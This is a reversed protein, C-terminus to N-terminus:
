LEEVDAQPEDTEPAQAKSTVNLILEDDKNRKFGFATVAVDLEITVVDGIRSRAIHWQEQDLPVSGSVALNVVKPQESHLSPLNEM